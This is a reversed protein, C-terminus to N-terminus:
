TAGCGVHVIGGEELLFSRERLSGSGCGGDSASVGSDIDVGELFRLRTHKVAVRGRSHQLCVELQVALQVVAGLACRGQSFIDGARADGFGGLAVIRVSGEGVAKIAVM